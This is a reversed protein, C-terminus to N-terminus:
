ATKSKIKRKIHSTMDLVTRIEEVEEDPIELEFEEEIAMVLEVIDLSDVDLDDVFSAKDTVQEEELSLQSIIIRKVKRSVDDQEDADTTEEKGEEVNKSKDASDSRAEKDAKTIAM